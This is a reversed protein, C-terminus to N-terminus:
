KNKEEIEIWPKFSNDPHFVIYPRLKQEPFEAIARQRLTEWEEQLFDDQEKRTPFYLHCYSIAEALSRVMALYGEKDKQAVFTEPRWSYDRIDGKKPKEKAIMIGLVEHIFVTSKNEPSM